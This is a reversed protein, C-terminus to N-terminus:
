KAIFKCFELHIDTNKALISSNEQTVNKIVRYRRHELVQRSVTNENRNQSANISRCLCM